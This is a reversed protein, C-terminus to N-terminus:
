SVKRNGVGIELVKAFDNRVESLLQEYHQTYGLELADVDYKITLDNLIGM